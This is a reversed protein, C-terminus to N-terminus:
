WYFLLRGDFDLVDVRVGYDILLQVVSIYGMECVRFLATYKFRDVVDIQVGYDLLLKVFLVYGFLVFVYFVLCLFFLYYEYVINFIRM